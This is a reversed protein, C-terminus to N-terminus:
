TNGSFIWIIFINKFVKQQKLRKEPYGGTHGGPFPYGGGLPHLGLGGYPSQGYPMIPVVPAAPVVPVGQVVPVCCRSKRCGM